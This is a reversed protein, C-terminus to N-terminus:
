VRAVLVPLKNVITGGTTNASKYTNNEVVVYKVNKGDADVRSTGATTSDKVLRFKLLVSDVGAVGVVIESGMDILSEGVTATSPGLADLVVVVAAFNSATDVTYVSGVNTANVNALATTIQTLTFLDATSFAVLRRTKNQAFSSQISSM